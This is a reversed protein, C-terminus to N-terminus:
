RKKIRFLFSENLTIESNDPLQITVLSMLVGKVVGTLPTPPRMFTLKNRKPIATRKKPDTQKTDWVAQIYESQTVNICFLNCRVIDGIEFSVDVEQIDEAQQIEEVAGIKSM